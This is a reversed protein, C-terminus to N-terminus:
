LSFFEMADLDRQEHDPMPEEDLGPRWKDVYALIQAKTERGTLVLWENPRISAVKVTEYRSGRVHPPRSITLMLTTIEHEEDYFSFGVHDITFEPPLPRGSRFWATSWDQDVCADWARKTAMVRAKTGSVIRQGGKTKTFFRDKLEIDWNPKVRGLVTLRHVARKEDGFGATNQWRAQVILQGDITDSGIVKWAEEVSAPDIKVEMELRRDNLAQGDADVRGNPIDVYNMRLSPWETTASIDLKLFKESTRIGNVNLRFRGLDDLLLRRAKDLVEQQREPTM